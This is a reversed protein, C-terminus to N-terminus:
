EVETAYGGAILAEIFEDFDDGATPPLEETCAIKLEALIVDKTKNAELGKWIFVSVANLGNTEGTEPNFLVGWGELEERMVIEPNLKIM